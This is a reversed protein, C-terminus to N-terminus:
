ERDEDPPHKLKLKEEIQYFRFRNLARRKFSDNKFSMLTAIDKKSDLLEKENAEAKAGVRSVWVAFGILAIVLYLSVFTKENIKTVDGEGNSM